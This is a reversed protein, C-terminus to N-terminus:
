VSMGARQLDLIWQPTRKVYAEIHRARTYYYWATLGPGLIAVVMLTVYLVVYILRTLDQVPGLMEAIQPDSAISAPLETPQRLSTWLSYGAYIFLMAGLALQNIALRKPATADLRKVEGAGRFEYFAVVAMGLGLVFAPISTFGSLITLAAFISLTWGSFTAAAVARRIKGSAMRAAAIQELHQPTPPSTMPSDAYLCLPPQPMLQLIPGDARRERLRIGARAM